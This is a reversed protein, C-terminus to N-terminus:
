ARATSLLDDILPPFVIGGTQVMPDAGDNGGQDNQQGGARQHRRRLAHIMCRGVSNVTDGLAKGNVREIWGGGDREGLLGELLDFLSIQQPAESPRGIREGLAVAEGRIEQDLRRIGPAHGGAGDGEDRRVTRMAIGVDAQGLAAPYDSSRCIQSRAGAVPGFGEDDRAKAHRDLRYPVDNSANGRSRWPGLPAERNDRPLRSYVGGDRGHPIGRAQHGGLGPRPPDVTERNPKVGATM